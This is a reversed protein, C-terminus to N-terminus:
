SASERRLRMAVTARIGRHRVRGIRHRLSNSARVVADRHAHEDPSLASGDPLRDGAAIARSPLVDWLHQAATVSIKRPEHHHRLREDVTAIQTSGTIGFADLAREVQTGPAALLDSYQIILRPYGTTHHMVQTMYELWVYEGFEVPLLDRAHLSAAVETPHRAIIVFPPMAGWCEVLLPLTLCLRPDKVVLAEDTALLAFTTDIADREHASLRADRLAWPTMTTGGRNRILMENLEVMPHQEFHGHPNSSAAGMLSEAPGVTMGAACLAETM